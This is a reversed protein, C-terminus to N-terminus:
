NNLCYNNSITEFMNLWIAGEKNKFHRPQLNPIRNPQANGEGDSTSSLASSYYKTISKKYAGNIMKDSNLRRRQDQLGNYESKSSQIKDIFDELGSTKHKEQEELMRKREQEPVRVVMKTFKTNTVNKIEDQTYMNDNSDFYITKTGTAASRM